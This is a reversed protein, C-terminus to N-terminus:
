NGQRFNLGWSDVMEDIRADLSKQAAATEKIAAIAENCIYETEEPRMFERKAITNLAKLSGDLHYGWRRLQMHLGTISANDFVVISNRSGARSLEPKLAAEEISLVKVSIRCLGRLYASPTTDLENSVKNLARSEAASLRFGMFETEGRM